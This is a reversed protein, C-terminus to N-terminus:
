RDSLESLYDEVQTYRPDEPSLLELSRRLDAVAGGRDSNRARVIGRWVRADINLPALVLSHDLDALAEDRRGKAAHAKGRHFFIAARDEDDPALKLARTFDVVANASANTRIFARGRHYLASHHDPKQAIAATLATIAAADDHLEAMARGKAYHTWPQDSPGVKLAQELDKLAKEIQQLAVYCRGRKYHAKWLTPDLAIAKTLMGVAASTAGKNKLSNGREYFEAATQPLPGLAQSARIAKEMDATVEKAFPGAQKTAIEMASQYDALAETFRGLRAYAWGRRHFFRGRRGPRELAQNFSELALENKNLSLYTLGRLNYARGNMPNLALCRAYDVLASDYDGSSHLIQGRDAYAKAWTPDTALADACLALAREPKMGQLATLPPFVKTAKARRALRAANASESRTAEESLRAEVPHRRPDEAPLAALAQAFDSRAQGSLDLDSYVLGRNYYGDAHVPDRRLLENFSALARTPDGMHALCMAALYRAQTDAPDVSLAQELDALAGDYEGLDLRAQGRRRWAVDLNPTLALPTRGQPTKTEPPPGERDPRAAEVPPTPPHTAPPVLSTRGPPATRDHTALLGVGLACIALAVAVGRASRKPAPPGELFAHLDTQLAAADPYRDEIRKELCKLVIRDLEKPVAPNQGSPPTAPTSCTAQLYEVLTEAQFPPDSTLLAFLTGGLTYIDSAPGIKELKGTVQEPPWFGPSGMFMGTKSLRSESDLDKAVGFDTLLPEGSPTLIVNDPKVDRHIIGQAHIATLAGALKAAIQAAHRPTLPGQAEIRDQLSTGEVFTMVLFPRERHEGADLLRVVNPHDVLLMSRTERRFRAVATPPASDAHLLVKIAVDTWAGRRVGRYVIGMGGRAIEDKVIYDGISQEV